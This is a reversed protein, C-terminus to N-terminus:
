LVRTRPMVRHVRAVGEGGADVFGDGAGGEGDVDAAAGEASISSSSGRCWLGVVGGPGAVLWRVVGVLGEALLPSPARGSGGVVVWARVWM